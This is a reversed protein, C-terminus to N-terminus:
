NMQSTSITTTGRIYITTPDGSLTCMVTSPVFYDSLICWSNTTAMIKQELIIIVSCGRTISPFM